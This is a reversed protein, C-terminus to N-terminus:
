LRAKKWRWSYFHLKLTNQWIRLWLVLIWRWAQHTAPHHKWYSFWYSWLSAGHAAAATSFHYKNAGGSDSESRDLRWQILNHSVPQHVHNNYWFNCFNYEWISSILSSFTSYTVRSDLQFCLLRRWIMLMIEAVWDHCQVCIVFM